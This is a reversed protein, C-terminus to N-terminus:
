KRANMMGYERGNLDYGRIDDSCWCLNSMSGTMRVCLGLSKETGDITSARGM